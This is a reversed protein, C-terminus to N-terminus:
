AHEKTSQASWLAREIERLDATTLGRRPDPGVHLAHDPGTFTRKEVELHEDDVWIYPHGPHEAVWQRVAWGKGDLSRWDNAGYTWEVVPLDEPFGVLPSILENADHKWTTLWHIDADLDLLAEGLLRSTRIQYCSGDLEVETACADAWPSCLFANLVGDVDLFLVPKM